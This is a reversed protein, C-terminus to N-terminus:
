DSQERAHGGISPPSADPNPVPEIDIHGEAPSPALPGLFAIARSRVKSRNRYSHRTGRPVFSADGATLEVESGDVTLVLMGEVVVVHEDSWPHYHENMVQGDDLSLEALFGARTGVTLPTLLGRVEGGQRRSPEVERTRIRIPGDTRLKRTM